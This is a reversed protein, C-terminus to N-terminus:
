SPFTSLLQLFMRPLFNDLPGFACYHLCEGGEQKGSGSHWDMRVRLPSLDMFARNKGTVEQAAIRDWEEFLHFNYLPRHPTGYEAWFKTANTPWEALPEL